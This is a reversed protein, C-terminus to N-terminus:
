GTETLGYASYPTVDSVYIPMGIAEIVSGGALRTNTLSSVRTDAQGDSVGASHGLAYAKRTIIM